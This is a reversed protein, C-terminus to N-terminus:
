RFIRLTPIEPRKPDFYRGQRTLIISIKARAPLRVGPFDQNM